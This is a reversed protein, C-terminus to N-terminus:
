FYCSFVFNKIRYKVFPQDEIFSMHGVRDMIMVEAHHPIMAQTVGLELPIRPDQKGYVFMVPVEVNELVHIRSPREAMGNMAAIIGEKTTYLCQDILDKIDQDLKQRNCEAFLAPIFGVIFGPANSRVIDIVKARYDKIEPTDALAHSHMLCFGRLMYPYREAFALTVYGGMSHGLMVCDEVGCADLVAKVADAMFEMTHVTDYTSSYGHGPLDVAIVRMERMYSLIYTSWTDLSQLFGHLLVLTKQHERGEDRYHISLEGFTITRHQEM